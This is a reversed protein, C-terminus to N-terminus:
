DEKEINFVEVAHLEKEEECDDDDFIPPVVWTKCISVRGNDELITLISALKAVVNAQKNDNRPVHEIEVDGLWGIPRLKSDGFVQLHLQKIDITMELGLILAQYEAVNNSFNQTLIFSYSLVESNSTIFIVGAGAGEKHSPGDFHMKWLPTVEIVIINEDPLDDSLDWEAPIPHNALFDALVQRKVAKEVEILPVLEPRFRRQDQKVSCAGKRISLPLVVVKPDLGPMEKDSWAFVDKFEHLLEVYTEEEDKTFFASIYIPRPNEIDGLNIEKLEDVTTKVGEELKPPAIEADEEEISDEENLTIHYTTAVEYEIMEDGCSIHYSSVVSEKDDDEDEQAKTFIITQLKVKLVKDCSIILNTCRKMRSPILSQFNQHTQSERGKKWPKASINLGQNRAEKCKLRRYPGLRDFISICEVKKGKNDNISSYEEETTYNTSARKIAIQVPNHPTFGFGSRSSQVSHGKERLM